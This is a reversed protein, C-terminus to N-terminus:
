EQWDTPQADPHRFHLNRHWKVSDSTRMPSFVDFAVYTHITHIDTALSTSHSSLCKINAYNEVCRSRFNGVNWEYRISHSQAAVDGSLWITEIEVAIANSFHIFLFLSSLPPPPALPCVISRCLRMMNIPLLTKTQDKNINHIFYWHKDDAIIEAKRKQVKERHGPSKDADDHKAYFLILHRVFKFHYITVQPRKWRSLTNNELVAVVM